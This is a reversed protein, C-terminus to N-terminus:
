GASLIAEVVLEPVVEVVVVVERELEGRPCGESCSEVSVTGVSVAVGGRGEESAAREVRGWDEGALAERGVGSATNGCV